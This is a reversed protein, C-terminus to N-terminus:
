FLLGDTRTHLRTSRQSTYGISPDDKANLMAVRAIERAARSIERFACRAACAALSGLMRKWRTQRSNVGLVASTSKIVEFKLVFPFVSTLVRTASISPGGAPVRTRILSPGVIKALDPTRKGASKGTSISAISGSLGILDIPALNVRESNSGGSLRGPEDEVPLRSTNSSGSSSGSCANSLRRTQTWARSTLPVNHSSM